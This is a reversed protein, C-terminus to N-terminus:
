HFMILVLMCAYHMFNTILLLFLIPPFISYVVVSLTLSLSLSLSLTLLQCHVVIVAIIGSFLPCAPSEVKSHMLRADVRVSCGDPIKSRSRVAQYVDSPYRLKLWFSHKKQDALATLPLAQFIISPIVTVHFTNSTLTYWMMACCLVGCCLVACWMLDSCLV